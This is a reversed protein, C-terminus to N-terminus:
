PWRSSISAQFAGDIVRQWPGDRTHELGLVSIVMEHGASKAQAETLGVSVVQPDSFIWLLCSAIVM